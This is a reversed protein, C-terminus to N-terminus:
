ITSLEYIEKILCLLQNARSDLNAYSVMMNHRKIQEQSCTNLATLLGNRIEYDTSDTSIEFVHQKIKTYDAENHNLDTVCLASTASIEWIKQLHVKPNLASGAIAIVSSNLDYAYEAQENRLDGPNYYWGCHPRRHVNASLSQAVDSLRKRGIYRDDIMGSILIDWRKKLSQNKFITEDYGCPNVRFLVYPLINKYHNLAVANKTIVGHVKSKTLINIRKLSDDWYDQMCVIKKATTNVPINARNYDFDIAYYIVDPKYDDIATQINTYPTDWGNGIILCDPHFKPIREIQRLSTVDIKSEMKLRDCDILLRM